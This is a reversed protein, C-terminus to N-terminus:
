TSPVSAFGSHRRQDAPKHGTTTGAPARAARREAAGVDRRHAVEEQVPRLPDEMAPLLGKPAVALPLAARLLVYFFVADLIPGYATFGGPADDGGQRHPRASAPRHLAVRRRVSGYPIEQEGYRLGGDLEGLM